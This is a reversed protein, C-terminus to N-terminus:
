FSDIALAVVWIALLGLFMVKIAVDILSRVVIDGVERAADKIM